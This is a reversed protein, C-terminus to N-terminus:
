SFIEFRGFRQAKLHSDLFKKLNDIRAQNNGIIVIDDLYFLLGIFCGDDVQIFLSNNSSSQKFGTELLVISFKSFWQRSVQKLGYFSMYNAFQILLFLSERMTFVLICCMYFEEHLDSYLFANNVDLQTLFSGYIAALALLVKMIVMQAVPSFTDLYDIGEQQTYRKAVLRANYQKLSGDARYKIKYVWKCRIAHKSPPLIVLPWTGNLELAQLEMAMVDQWEPFLLLRLTLQPSLFLLFLILWISILTHYIIIALFMLYPIIPQFPHSLPSLLVIIIKSILHLAVFVFPLLFLLLLLYLLFKLPLLHPHPFQFLYFESHFCTLLLLISLLTPKSLLCNTMYCWMGLYLPLILLYILFRTDKIDRPVALFFVLLHEQLFSLAIALLLLPM